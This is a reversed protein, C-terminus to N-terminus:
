PQLNQIDSILKVMKDALDSDTITSEDIFLAEHVLDIAQYRISKAGYKACLEGYEQMLETIKDFVIQPVEFSDKNWGDKALFEEAQLETKM